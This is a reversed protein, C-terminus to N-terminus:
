ILLKMKNNIGKKILIYIINIVKKVYQFLPFTLITAFTVANM